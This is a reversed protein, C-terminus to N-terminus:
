WISSSICNSTRYQPIPILSISSLRVFCSAQWLYSLASSSITIEDNPNYDNVGDTYKVFSYGNKSPASPLNVKSGIEACTSNTYSSYLGWNVDNYSSENSYKKPPYSPGREQTDTKLFNWLSYILNSMSYLQVACTRDARM